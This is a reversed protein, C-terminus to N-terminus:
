GSPILPAAGTTGRSRSRTIMRGPRHAVTSTGEGESEGSQNHNSRVSLRRRKSPPRRAPASGPASASVQNSMEPSSDTESSVYGEPEWDFRVRKRGRQPPEPTTDKMAQRTESLTLSEALESFPITIPVTELVERSIQLEANEPVFDALTLHINGPQEAGLHDRFVANHM